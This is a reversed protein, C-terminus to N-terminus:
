RLSMRTFMDTLLQQTFGDQKDDDILVLRESAQLLIVGVAGPLLAGDLGRAAAEELASQRALGELEAGGFDVQLLRLQVKPKWQLVRSEGSGGSYRAGAHSLSLLVPCTSLADSSESGESYLMTSVPLRLETRVPATSGGCAPKRKRCADPSPAAALM